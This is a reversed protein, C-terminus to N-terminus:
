AARSANRRSIFVDIAGAIFYVVLLLVPVVLWWPGPIFSWCHCRGADITAQLCRPCAMSAFYLFVAVVGLVVAMLLHRGSPRAFLRM